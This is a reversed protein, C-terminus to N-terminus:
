TKSSQLRNGKLSNNNLRYLDFLKELRETDNKFKRGIYIREILEDNQKHANRINIPMNESSYLDSISKPFHSERALLIEIASRNLDDKNKKTLKPIPFTNWGLTNSYSFDTRLRVCINGIWILHLRSAILAMNWLPADFIAFNRDGIITQNDELGVPLFERNESSVRPIVLFYNKATIQMQSIEDFRHATNAAKRTSEKKSNIRMQRVKEIREAIEPISEALQRDKDEIWLCYRQQGRIFEQAGVFKRIYRESNPFENVLSNRQNSTMFFNGGDTPKNGWEMLGREDKPKSCPTVIINQGAVLYANINEVKKSSLKGDNDVSFLQKSNRNSSSIGIIVVTVGANYRALNAWKFPRYAFSISHKTSFILPWLISVQAGQCVSKTAVFAASCNNDKGYDAAKILWGSVYDLSKWNKTRNKFILKLEDKQKNTQWTSGLYPPNGCLYTEGGDNKFDIEVQDLPPTFLDNRINQFRVGMGSPPCISQWELELANGCIIWNNTELPLFELIAEKQGLYNVDCQFEAIILALRAIEAPFSRIEIGRFNTLPIDSKRGCENRLTNIQDEIARLQKYAIVLFNGSGCAPDFIRIKALRNRLNLLKRPSNKADDLQNTIDNLFLPNLLKLINSVSTYHMGLSDREEEDSVAQIMSGFIDPNIKQWDLNGIHILYSRAIRSFKPVEVSMSFLGGNVYPFCDAWRLIQENKRNENPINMARFIESIIEHTNSADRESMQEVTNTFSTNPGFIDTDEAFFCFILRAMFHNIEDRREAIGWEPNERILEIYLKHLRGTAKIDFSSETISKVKTIGALPLFFGFHDSFNHHDCSIIEGSKLDEAEFIEGDTALVFNAKAKLTEPSKRIDSLTKPVLGLGCTAIHIHNRHLVGNKKDSKNSTGSRLKKITTSKIGFAELFLYPFEELDFPLKAVQSVAEEIEVANM